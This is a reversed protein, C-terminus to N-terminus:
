RAFVSAVAVLLVYASLAWIGFNAVASIWPRTKTNRQM